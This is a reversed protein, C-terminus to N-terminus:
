ILQFLYSDGVHDVLKWSSSTKLQQLWANMQATSQLGYADAYLESSRDWILYLPSTPTSGHAAAVASYRGGLLAADAATPHLQQLAPTGQLVQSWELTQYSYTFTAGDAPNTASGVSLVFADHPPQHWVDDVVAVNNRPLVNTGDMAYAAILFTGLLACLGLGIGATLLDPQRRLSPVWRSPHPMRMALVAMWPIAFLTARFIGENGYPNIAILAVGVIPCLAYAWAWKERVNALFGVAGLAILILLAVLLLHSQTGVIGLRHLGPTSLTLPPRFNSINFLSGFNFNQSIVNHVVGAWLLAPVGIPLCSWWPAQGFVALVILAGAAMYPSLEHAPGLAVGALLLLGFTMRDGFPRRTRGNIAIAVIGLAMVYGISQPSFYDAGLSDVLLVLMVACWRRSSTPLLRGMLFRLVAVRILVLLVPWYTALGLLSMHGLMGHIGLLESLGAFGSFMSSFAQYIGATVHVHHNLLVNEVIQMQKGATQERPTGYVLAPTLTTALGFSLTALAARLESRRGLAFGALVMVLGIYWLPNITTLLGWYGPNTDRTWLAPALWFITGLLTLQLSAHQPIWKLKIRGAITLEHVEDDPELDPEVGDRDAPQEEYGDAQFSHAMEDHDLDAFGTLLAKVLEARGAVARKAEDAPQLWVEIVGAAHLCIAPILIMLAAGLPSWLGRVDAMVMGALLLVAFGVLVSGTLRAYLDLEVRLQFAAGGVGFFIVGYGGILALAEVGALRGVIAVLLSAAFVAAWVLVAIAGTRLTPRPPTPRSPAVSEIRPVTPKLELPPVNM